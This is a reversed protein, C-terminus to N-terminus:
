FGYKIEFVLGVEMVELRGGAFFFFFVFFLVFFGKFERFDLVIVKRGSPKEGFLAEKQFNLHWLSRNAASLLKVSQNKFTLM